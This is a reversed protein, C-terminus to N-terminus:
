HFSGEPEANWSDIISGVYGSLPVDIERASAMGVSTCASGLVELSVNEGEALELIKKIFETIQEDETM